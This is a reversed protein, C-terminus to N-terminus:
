PRLWSKELPSPASTISAFLRSFSFNSTILIYLWPFCLRHIFLQSYEGLFSPTRGVLSGDQKKSIREHHSCFEVVKIVHKLRTKNQDIIKKEVTPFCIELTCPEKMKAFNLFPMLSERRLFQPISLRTALFKSLPPLCCGFL